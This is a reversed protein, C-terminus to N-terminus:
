PWMPHFVHSRVLSHYQTALTTAEQRSDWPEVEHPPPHQLVSPRGKTKALWENLLQWSHPLYATSFNPYCSEEHKMLEFESDEAENMFKEPIDVRVFMVGKINPIDECLYGLSSTPPTDAAYTVYTLNVCHTTDPVYLEGSSRWSILNQLDAPANMTLDKLTGPHQLNTLSPPQMEHERDWILYLSELQLAGCERHLRSISWVVALHGVHDSAELLRRVYPLEEESLPGRILHLHLVLVRIFAANPLFIDSIRKVWDNRRHVLIHETEDQWGSVCSITFGRPVDHRAYRSDDLVEETITREIDEISGPAGPTFGGCM